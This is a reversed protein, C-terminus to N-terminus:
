PFTITEGTVWSSGNYRETVNTNGSPIIRQDGNVPTDPDDGFYIGSPAIIWQRSRINGSVDLSETPETLFVGLGTNKIRAVSDVAGVRFDMFSNSENSVDQGYAIRGSVTTDLIFHIGSLENLDLSDTNGGGDLEIRPAQESTPRYTFRNVEQGNVYFDVGAKPTGGIVVNGGDEIFIGLNGADDVLNLGNSDKAYIYQTNINDINATSLLAPFVYGRVNAYCNISLYLLLFISLIIKKM